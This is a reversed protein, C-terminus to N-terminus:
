TRVQVRGRALRYVREAYIRLLKRLSGSDALPLLMYAARRAFEAPTAAWMFQEKLAIRDTRQATAASLSALVARQAPTAANHLAAQFSPEVTGPVLREVLAFAPYVFREARARRLGEGLESWDLGVPADRRIMFALEVMRILTLNYLGRSAHAAHYALVAPQALTSALPGAWPAPQRAEAFMGDFRITRVGFFSVELAAHLDLAYANDSHHLAVSVVSDAAGPPRWDTRYPRALRTGPVLGYGATTLASEARAVDPGSVLLDLDSMPRVGPEPFYVFATHGGKLVTVGIGAADLVALAARLAQHMTEARARGHALHLRLLERASPDARLLGREIWWGLLPGMGSTFAAVTLARLFADDGAPLDASTDGRLISSTVHEINLLAKQWKAPPVEPWIYLPHGQSRAWRLREKLEISALLTSDPLM